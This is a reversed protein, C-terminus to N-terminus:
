VVLVGEQPVLVGEQPVLVGEQPLLVGEQPLVAEQVLAGSSLERRRNVRSALTLGAEGQVRLVAEHDSSGGADLTVPTVYLASRPGPPLGATRRAGIDVYAQRAVMWWM